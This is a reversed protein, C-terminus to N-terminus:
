QTALDRTNGSYPCLEKKIQIGDVIKNAPREHHYFTRAYAYVVVYRGCGPCLTDDGGRSETLKNPYGLWRMRTEWHDTM